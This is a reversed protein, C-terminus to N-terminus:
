RAGEDEDDSVRSTRRVQESLADLGADTFAAAVENALSARAARYRFLTAPGLATPTIRTRWQPNITVNDVMGDRTLTVTVMKKSDAGSFTQGTLEHEIESIAAVTGELERRGRDLDAQLEGFFNPGNTATM